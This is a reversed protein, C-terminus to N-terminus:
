WTFCTIGAIHAKNETIDWSAARCKKNGITDNKSIDFFELVLNPERSYVFDKIVFIDHRVCWISFMLCKKSAQLWDLSQRHSHTISYNCHKVSIAKAEEFVNSADKAHSVLCIMKLSPSCVVAFSCLFCYTIKVALRLFLVCVKVVHTSNRKGLFVIEKLLKSSLPFLSM